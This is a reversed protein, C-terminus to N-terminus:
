VREKRSRAAAFGMVVYRSVDKERGREGGGGVFLSKM